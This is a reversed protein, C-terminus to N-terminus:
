RSDSTGLPGRMMLLSSVSNRLNHVRQQASLTQEKLSSYLGSIFVYLKDLSSSCHLFWHRLCTPILRYLNGPAPRRFLPSPGWWACINKDKKTTYFIILYRNTTNVASEALLCRKYSVTKNAYKEGRRDARASPRPPSLFIWRPGFGSEGGSSSIKWIRNQCSTSYRFHPNIFLCARKGSLVSFHPGFM